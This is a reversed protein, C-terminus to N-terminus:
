RPSYALTRTPHIPKLCLLPTSPTRTHTTLSSLTHEPRTPRTTHTPPATLRTSGLQPPHRTLSRTRPRLFPVLPRSNLLLSLRHQPLPRRPHFRRYGRDLVSRITLRLRPAGLDRITTYSGRRVGVMAVGAGRGCTLRLVPTMHIRARPINAGSSSRTYGGSARLLGAGLSTSLSCGM